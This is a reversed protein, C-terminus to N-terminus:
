CDCGDDGNAVVSIYEYTLTEDAITMNDGTKMKMGYHNYYANTQNAGRTYVSPSNDYCDMNDRWCTRNNTSGTCNYFDKAVNSGYSAVNHHGLVQKVKSPGWNYMRMGLNGVCCTIMIVLTSDDGALTGFRAEDHFDVTCEGDYETSFGIIDCTTYAHGSYITVRRNDGYDDDKWNGNFTAEKLDQPWSAADVYRWGDWGDSNLQTALSSTKASRDNGDCSTYDLSEEIVYTKKPDISSVAQGPLFFAISIVIAPISREMFLRKM